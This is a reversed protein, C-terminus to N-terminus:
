RLSSPYISKFTIEDSGLGNNEEGCWGTKAERCIGRLVEPQQSLGGGRLLESRAMELLAWVRARYSGAWKRCFKRMLVLRSRRSVAGAYGSKSKIRFSINGFFFFM